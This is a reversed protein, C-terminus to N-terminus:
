PGPIPTVAPTPSPTGSTAPGLNSPLAIPPNVKPSPLPKPAELQTPAPAAQAQTQAGALKALADLENQAKLYDPSSQDVKSVVTQMAAYANTYDKKEKYAASINYYANAYDPKLDAAQQFAQIAGDYNKQAFYIGGLAIRLSPNVPDLVIAQQYSAVAWQDAGQAFNLLNQYIAALNEVNTVKAPNLTVANKAEQISQQVLNTILTRDDATLNTKTAASNALLLDTQSAAIHYTDKYPNLNIAAIISEYTKKGENRGAAQLGSQFVVEAAYAKAYIYGAPLVLALALILSVWPLIPTRIGTDSAAIIDIHAEHVLSSGMLKFSVVMIILLSFLLFLATVGPPIFFFTILILVASAGAALAPTHAQSDSASKLSRILLDVVKYVLFLISALGLLGTTTLIQLYYNSASTFRISWNPTLNFTVPRFRTFDSLYTSPGTGFLPSLKLSEMAIAWSASQSLFVPRNGPTRYIRYAILGSTIVFLFLVISLGLVQASNEKQKVILITIFPVLVLLSTLVGLPNGAPSWLPNQAFVWPIIKGMIGTGWILSIVSLVSFSGILGKILLDLEKKSKIFTLSTLFFVSMAFISVTSGAELLVDMRNPTQSLTSIIWVVLVTLLPLGLPSRTIRVQKELVFTVTWIVLLLGSALLLLINKNFEYFESTIPLFFLPFIVLLGFIIWFGIKNLLLSLKM